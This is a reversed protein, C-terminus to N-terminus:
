NDQWFPVKYSTAGVKVMFYGDQPTTGITDNSFAGITFGGMADASVEITSTAAMDTYLLNTMASTGAEAGDLLRLGSGYTRSGGDMDGFRGIVGHIKTYDDVKGSLIKALVAGIETTITLTNARGADMSFEGHVGYGAGLTDTTDGKAYCEGFVGEASSLGCGNAVAMIEAGRLAGTANDTDSQARIFMGQFQNGVGAWSSVTWRLEVGEGSTYSAGIALASGAVSGSSLRGKLILTDAVADGFTLNGGISFDGDVTIQKAHVAGSHWGFRRNAM